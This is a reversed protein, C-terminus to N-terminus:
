RRLISPIPSPDLKGNPKSSPVKLVLAKTALLEVVVVSLVGVVQVAEVALIIVADDVPAPDPNSAIAAFTEAAFKSGEAAAARSISDRFRLSGDVASTPDPNSAIATSTEAASKGVIGELAAILISVRFRLSVSRVLDFLRNPNGVIVLGGSGSLNLFSNPDRAVLLFGM